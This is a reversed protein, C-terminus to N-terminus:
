PVEEPFTRHGEFVTVIQVSRASVRYVVRYHGVILERLGGAPREPVARGRNPFRALSSGARILREVLREAAIPDDQAVFEEIEVLRARAEATFEVRM